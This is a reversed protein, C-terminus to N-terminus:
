RRPPPASWRGRDRRSAERPPRRRRFLTFGPVVYATGPKTVGRSPLPQPHRGGGSDAAECPHPPGDRGQGGCRASRRALLEPHDPSTLRSSRCCGPHWAQLAVRNFLREWCSTQPRELSHPSMARPRSEVQSRRSRWARAVSFSWLARAKRPAEIGVRSIGRRRRLTLSIRTGPATVAPSGAFNGRPVRAVTASKPAEPAGYRRGRDGECRASEERRGGFRGGATAKQVGRPM